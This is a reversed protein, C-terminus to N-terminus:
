RRRDGADPGEHELAFARAVRTVKAELEIFKTYYHLAIFLLVTDVVYGLLDVGRGIGLQQALVTSMDPFLVLAVACTLMGCVVVIHIPLGRRRLFAYRATALLVLLMVGRFIM